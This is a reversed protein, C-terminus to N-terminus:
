AHPARMPAADERHRPLPPRHWGRHDPDGGDPRPRRDDGLARQDDRRRRQGRRPGEDRGVLHCSRRGAPGAQRLSRGDPQLPRLLDVPAPPSEALLHPAQPGAPADPPHAAPEHPVESQLARDPLRRVRPHVRPIGPGSEAQGPRAPDPLTKGNLAPPLRADIITVMQGVRWGDVAEDPRGVTIQGRIRPREGYHEYSKAIATKEADTVAEADVSTQRFHRIATRSVFPRYRLAWGTGQYVTAGGNYIFDTVGNVYAQQPAYSSDYEIQLNRGGIHSSGDLSATRDTIIAPAAIGGRRRPAILVGGTGSAFDRVAEWHVRLDPDIWYFIPFPALGRMEDLASRLTTHSWQLRSKGTHPDIMVSSPIWSRVFTTTDPVVYSEVAPILRPLEVYADFLAAVTPGDRSLGHANPDIPQHTRGGDITEWDGGDPVGVMRLDFVTNFDSATAHWKRWPFGVPLDLTSHGIEGWFLNTGPVWIKLVDRWGRTIRVPTGDTVRTMAGYQTASGVSRDQITVSAQGVGDLREEWTADWQMVDTAEIGNVSFHATTM